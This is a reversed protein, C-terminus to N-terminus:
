NNRELAKVEIRICYFLICLNALPLDPRCYNNCLLHTWFFLAKYLKAERKGLELFTRYYSNNTHEQADHYRASHTQHRIAINEPIDIVLLWFELHNHLYVSPPKFLIGLNNYNLYPIYKGLGIKIWKLPYNWGCRQRWYEFEWTHSWHLISGNEQQKHVM